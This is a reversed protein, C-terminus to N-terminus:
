KNVQKSLLDYYKDQSKFLEMQWFVINRELTEIYEETAEENAKILKNTLRRPNVVWFVGSIFGLLIGIVIYILAMMEASGM